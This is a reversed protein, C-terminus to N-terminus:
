SVRLSALIADWIALKQSDSMDAGVVFVKVFIDNFKTFMEESPFVWQFEEM